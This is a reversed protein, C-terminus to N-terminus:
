DFKIYRIKSDNSMESLMWLYDDLLMAADKLDNPNEAPYAFARMSTKTKGPDFNFIKIKSTPELEEQLIEALSKVAAKSIAYAGWYARGKEAVGSSTFIIRPNVSHEMIPVLYKTLLFSSTINVNLVKQWTEYDYDSIASMKGIIAANNIVGDLCEYSEIIANAFEQAKNENLDNLDCKIILPSTGFEKIIEDYLADLANENRGHLIINAGYSSLDLALQRGIGSTSGTILINKNELFGKKFHYKEKM